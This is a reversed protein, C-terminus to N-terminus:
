VKPRSPRFRELDSLALRYSISRSSAALLKTFPRAQTLSFEVAKIQRKPGQSRHREEKLRRHLSGECFSMLQAVLIVLRGYYAVPM